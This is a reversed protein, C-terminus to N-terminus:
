RTVADTKTQTSERVLEDVLPNSLLVDRQSASLERYPRPAFSGPIGRANMITTFAPFVRYKVILDRLAIVKQQYVAAEAWQEREACRAIAAVWRPAIAHMGDLHERYGSRLLVDILEPAALIVRFSPDTAERLQRAWAPNESVKIGRINPHRSLEVITELAFRTRTRTPLDYLFLPSNSIQALSQYYEVLEDQDFSVFFPPLVVVGALLRLGADGRVEVAEPEAVGGDVGDGPPVEGIAAGSRTFVFNGGAQDPAIELGLEGVVRQLVEDAAMPARSGGSGGIGACGDAEAAKVAAVADRGTGGALRQGRVHVHAGAGVGVCDDAHRGRSGELAAHESPYERSRM